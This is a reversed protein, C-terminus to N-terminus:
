YGIAQAASMVKDVPRAARNSQSCAGAASISPGSTAAITTAEFPPLGRRGNGGKTSACPMTPQRIALITGSDITPSTSPWQNRNVTPTSATTAIELRSPQNIVRQCISGPVVASQPVLGPAAETIVM